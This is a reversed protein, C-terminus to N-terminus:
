CCILDVSGYLELRSDGESSNAGLTLPASSLTSIMRSNQVGCGATRILSLRFNIKWISSWASRRTKQVRGDVDQLGAITRHIKAGHEAMLIHRHFM